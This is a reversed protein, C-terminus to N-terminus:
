RSGWGRRVSSAMTAWAMAVGTHREPILGFLSNSNMAASCGSTNSHTRARVVGNGRRSGVDARLGVVGFAKDVCRQLQGGAPGSARAWIPATPRAETGRPRVSTLM